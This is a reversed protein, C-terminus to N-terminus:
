ASLSERCVRASVKGRDDAFDAMIADSALDRRIDALDEKDNHKFSYFIYSAWALGYAPIALAIVLGVAVEAQM